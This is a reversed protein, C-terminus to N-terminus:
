VLLNTENRDKWVSTAECQDNTLTKILNDVEEAVKKECEPCVCMITKINRGIKIYVLGIPAEHEKKCFDCKIAINKFNIDNM